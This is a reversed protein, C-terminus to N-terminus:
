DGIRTLTVTGPPNVCGGDHLSAEQVIGNVVVTPTMTQVRCGVTATWGTGTWHFIVAVGTDTLTADCGPCDSTVTFTGTAGSLTHYTYFYTGRLWPGTAAAAGPAAGPPMVPIVLPAGNALNIVTIQTIPAPTPQVVLSGGPISDQGRTGPTSRSRNPWRRLCGAPKRVRM